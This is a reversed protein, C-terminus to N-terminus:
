QRESNLTSITRFRDYSLAQSSQAGQASPAILAAAFSLTVITRVILEDNENLELGQDRGLNLEVGGNASREQGARRIGIAIEGQADSEAGTKSRESALLVLNDCSAVEM